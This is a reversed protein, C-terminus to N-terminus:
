HLLFQDEFNYNLHSLLITLRAKLQSNVEILPNCLFLKGEYIYLLCTFSEYRLM